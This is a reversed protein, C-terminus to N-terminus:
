PPQRRKPNLHHGLEVSSELIKGAQSNFPAHNVFSRDIKLESFPIRSLQTISSYTGNM